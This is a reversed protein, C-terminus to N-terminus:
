EKIDKSISQTTTQSGLAFRNLIFPPKDPASGCDHLPQTPYINKIKALAYNLAKLMKTRNTAGTDSPLSIWDRYASEIEAMDDASVWCIKPLIHAPTETRITEEVFRRFEMNQFRGAYAPLVFHLRYSYPDAEACNTCNPDVCISMFPADQGPPSDQRRPRLLINEILYMGEGSDTQYLKSFTMLTEIAANMEETTDFYEIRRAIVENEANVINFYHQKGEKTTRCQYSEPNQALQIAENMEARAADESAYYTSSSLLIKGTVAHKIRFRFEDGPTKDVQPYMDHPITSLNRRTFNRIGLLHALRRELGSVNDTNWVADEDKSANDYALSREAGLTPYERLFDYKLSIAREPGDGFASQVINVYHHFDEAVRSLLHDAFRNRRALAVSDNELLGYLLDDTVGAAYVRDADAFSNIRQAFYTQTVKPDRSFLERLNTLQAFYNAMLQDFFLLYGKLQLALAKRQEDANSPLGEDSLGYLVPFHQQFSQYAGTNRFRGRPVAIDEENKNNLKAELADNLAQLEIEFPIKEPLYPIGRKYCVMRGQQRSLRPRKGAPVPMIWKNDPMIANDDPDNGPYLPKVIIDRVARVGEIDMIISIIDSLRIETRLDAQELEADDIFGHELAPGEFIEAVTYAAGDAHKRQLMDTLSYNMVPPMLYREIEFQIRAAVKNEDANPMLELETCLIYYCDEVVEVGVFDECLNRNIQLLKMAATCITDRDDTGVSEDFSLLAKYLGRLPVEHIGKRAPDKVRPDDFILENALIDAYICEDVPVIWANRVQVMDILLKRYDNATLPRNPLIERATFFQQEKNSTNDPSAALLDEIPFHARYALETLAYCALELMTIGPDHINHDTWLGRSLRRIHDLGLAYLQQQDLAPDAEPTKSIINNLLM